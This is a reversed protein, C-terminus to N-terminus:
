EIYRARTEYSSDAPKNINKLEPKWIALGYKYLKKRLPGTDHWRLNLDEFSIYGRIAALSPDEFFIGCKDYGIAVVWHGSSWDKEYSEENQNERWAQLMMLVPIKTDLFKRLQRYNMGKIAKYKLGYKRAARKIQYPHSGVNKNMKLAKIYDIEETPGVGFYGCIAQLGSAGCSYDEGQRTDPLQIKIAGKSISQYIIAM